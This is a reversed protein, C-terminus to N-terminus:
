GTSPWLSSSSVLAAWSAESASSVGSPRDLTTSALSRKPRRARWSSGPCQEHREGGLGAHGPMVDAVPLDALSRGVRHAPPDGGLAARSRGLKVARDLPDGPRAGRRQRDGVAGAQEAHDLQLVDDFSPILSRKSCIRAAPILVTIIV